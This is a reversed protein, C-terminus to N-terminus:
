TFNLFLIFNFFLFFLLHNSLSTKIRIFCLNTGKLFSPLDIKLLTKFIKILLLSLKLRQEENAKTDWIFANYYPM